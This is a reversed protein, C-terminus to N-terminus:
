NPKFLDEITEKFQAEAEILFINYEPWYRVSKTKIGLASLNALLSKAPDKESRDQFSALLAKSREEDSVTTADALVDLHKVHEWGVFGETKFLPKLIIQQQLSSCRLKELELFFKLIPSPLQSLSAKKAMAREAKAELDKRWEDYNKVGVATEKEDWYSSRWISFFPTTASKADVPIGQRNLQICAVFVCEGNQPCSPVALYYFFEPSDVAFASPNMTCSFAICTIVIWKQYWRFWNCNM